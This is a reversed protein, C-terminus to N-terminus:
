GAAALLGRRGLRSLSAAVRHRGADLAESVGDVTWGPGRRCVELVRRDM